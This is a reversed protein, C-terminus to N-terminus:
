QPSGIMDSPQEKGIAGVLSPTEFFSMTTRASNVNSQVRYLPQALIVQSGEHQIKALMTSQWVLYGMLLRIM